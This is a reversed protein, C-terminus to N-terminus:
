KRIYLADGWEHATIDTEVRQFEDLFEDLEGILACDRYLHGVNVETYIYDADKLYETSGKLCLLEAGQLDMNMFNLGTHLFGYMQGLEDVTTSIHHQKGTYWVDKVYHAHLELDLISSSQGNNAVNFTVSKGGVDSVLAQIVRHGYPAVFKKLQPLLLPNAEIWVVESIGCEAYKPAEEGTHAGVHLVGTINMNYKPVLKALDFLM